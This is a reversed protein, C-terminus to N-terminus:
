PLILWLPQESEGLNPGYLTFLSRAPIRAPGCSISGKTSRSTSTILWLWDIEIRKGLGRLLKGGMEPRLVKDAHRKPPKLLLDASVTNWHSALLPAWSMHARM